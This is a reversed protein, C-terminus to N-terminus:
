YPMQGTTASSLWTQGSPSSVRLSCPRSASRTSPQDHFTNQVQQFAAQQQRPQQQGKGAPPLMHGELLRQGKGIFAQELHRCSCRGTAQEGLQFVLAHQVTRQPQAQVPAEIEVAPAQVTAFVAQGGALGGALQERLPLAALHHLVAQGQDLAPAEALQARGQSTLLAQLLGEGPQVIRRQHLAEPEVALM